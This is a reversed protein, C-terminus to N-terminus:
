RKVIWQLRDIVVYYPLNLSTDISTQHCYVTYEQRDSCSPMMSEIIDILSISFKPFLIYLYSFFFRPCYDVDVSDVFHTNFKNTLSENIIQSSWRCTFRTSVEIQHYWRRSKISPVPEVYKLLTSRKTTRCSFTTRNTKDKEVTASSTASDVNAPHM